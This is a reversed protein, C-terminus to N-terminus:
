FMGSYGGGSYGGSYRGGSYGGFGVSFGRFSNRLLPWVVAIAASLSMMVIYPIKWKEWGGDLLGGKEWKEKPTAYMRGLMWASFLGLVHLLSTFTVYLMGAM